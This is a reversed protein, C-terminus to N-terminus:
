MKEESKHNRKRMQKGKKYKVKVKGECERLEQESQGSRVFEYSM